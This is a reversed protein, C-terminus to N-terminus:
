ERVSQWRRRLKGFAVYGIALFLLAWMGDGIPNPESPLEPDEEDEFGGSEGVRRPRGGPVYTPTNDGPATQGVVVGSQAAIPLNSGSGGFSSTSRFHYETDAPQNFQAQASVSALAIVLAVLLYRLAKM